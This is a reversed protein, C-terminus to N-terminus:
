EIRAIAICLNDKSGNEAAEKILLDAMKSLEGSRKVTSHIMESSLHDHLGDTTLLVLDGRSLLFNGHDPKVDPCGVCQDLLNRLPHKMAEEPTIEGDDILEQIFRHDTTIQVLGDKGSHYIRSDGVHSWAAKLGNIVVITLTTGMGKELKKASAVAMIEYGAERTMVGLKQPSLPLMKTHSEIYNVAMNAALNGCEEGGVGDAVCLVAQRQKIKKVLFVDQNDPRYNGKQTQGYLSISNSNM